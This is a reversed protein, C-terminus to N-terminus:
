IYYLLIPLFQLLDLILCSSIQDFKINSIFLYSEIHAHHVVQNVNQCRNENRGRRGKRLNPIVLLLNRPGMAAINRVIIIIIIITM